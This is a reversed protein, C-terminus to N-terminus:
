TSGCRRMMKPGQLWTPVQLRELADPGYGGTGPDDVGRRADRVLEQPIMRMRESVGLETTVMATLAPGLWADKPNQSLNGFGMIAITRSEADAPRVSIRHPPRLLWLGALALTLATIGFLLWVTRQSARPTAVEDRPPPLLVVPEAATARPAPAIAATVTSDVHGVSTVTAVFRYGLKPVTEIFGSGEEGDGLARRIVWIHKTLNSEEVYGRPWLARMLEDKSVLRGAREVLLVLTDFVKPTLAVPKGGASLRREAPDLEFEGFRYVSNNREQM